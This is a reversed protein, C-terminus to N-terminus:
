SRGAKVEVDAYIESLPIECGVTTLRLVSGPGEVRTVVWEDAGPVRTYLEIAPRDQHVLVYAGLSEIGWYAWWKEGRDRKETSDSLIELVVAPNLLHQLGLRTEYVLEGCVISVDPYYYRNAVEIRVRLDSSFGRCNTGGLRSGVAVALNFTIASHELSAGSMAVIVGDVYESKTEAADERKLYQEPTVYRPKAHAVM